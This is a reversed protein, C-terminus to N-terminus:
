GRGGGGFLKVLVGELCHRRKGTLSGSRDEGNRILFRRRRWSQVYVGAALVREEGGPGQSRHRWGLFSEARTSDVCRLLLLRLFMGEEAEDEDEM